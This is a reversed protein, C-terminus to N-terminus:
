GEARLEAGYRRKVWAVAEERTAVQGELQADELRELVVGMRPGARLGLGMLDRGSLLREPRLKEPGVEELQEVCYAHLDLKGHCGMCDARHLELLQDFCDQRLFRKRKSERMDRVNRIRMHQAVLDCIRESRAKSMRLRQCIAAAMEAGVIDHRNFRIRDRMEFTPEKGIDHLLAAWALEPSPEQLQGMVLLLHTWVDGEPHFEPPQEVGRLAAVEPLLVALLGSEMLLELGRVVGGETLLRTLEEAIREASTEAIHPALQCLAKYTAPEIAFAFRAAFRVGRLLRLYDEGFRANADGIARVVGREIDARGGVYDILENTHPDYFLGNITFDRRLADERANTFEVHEPRRGDSYPGDRRFRAVEYHGQDLVVVVIGFRAGIDVTRAFLKQVEEPSADSAIDWDKPRQGMLMDRVCGGALLGQYGARQLTDVVFRAGEDVLM